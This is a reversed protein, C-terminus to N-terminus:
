NTACWMCVCVCKPVSWDHLKGCQLGLTYCCCRLVFPDLIFGDKACVRSFVRQDGFFARLVLLEDVCCKPAAAPRFGHDPKKRSSRPFDLFGFDNSRSLHYSAPPNIAGATLFPPGNSAISINCPIALSEQSYEMREFIKLPRSKEKM